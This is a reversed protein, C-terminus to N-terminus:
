YTRSGKSVRKGEQYEWSACTSMNNQKMNSMINRLGEENKLIRKEKQHEAQTIKDVKDEM